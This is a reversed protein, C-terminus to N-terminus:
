LDRFLGAARKMNEIVPVGFPCKVECTGCLTCSAGSKKMSKYHQVISPPVNGPDLLAMDLYKITMAIDIEAECPLCHNCYVCKGNGRGAFGKIIDVYNLEEDTATLYSVAEEVEKVSQCGILASVVGPRTLSYHICQSVTMAKKFPSHEATLLRGGGLAKMVTIAIDEKECYQYIKAREPDIAIYEQESGKGYFTGLTNADAPIMDFAPNCSFMLVDILGTGLVRNAVKPNHSSMGISRITGKEKLELVYDIIGNAYYEDVIEDSDLFFLMGIDIYDTKLCTLLQEFYKKCLSLDRSMDYQGNASISGIHGQIMMDQRRKGLAKGINKRIEEGPMFVDMINIGHDLVADIVKKVEKYPKKELHEAGFGIISASMGTKGIPRYKMEALPGTISTTKTTDFICGQLATTALVGTGLKQLFDRRNIEKKIDM